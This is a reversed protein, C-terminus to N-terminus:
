KLMEYATQIKMFMELNAGSGTDPHYKAALKRHARRIKEPTAGPELGLVRFATTKEDHIFSVQLLETLYDSPKNGHYNKSDWMFEAATLAKFFLPLFKTKYTIDQKNYVSILNEILLDRNLGKASSIAKALSTWEDLRGGFISKMIHSTFNSEETCNQVLATICLAGPFPENQVDSFDGNEACLRWKKHLKLFHITYIIGALTLFILFICTIMTKIYKILILLPCVGITAYPDTGEKM